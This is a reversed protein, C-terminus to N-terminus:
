RSSQRLLALARVVSADYESLADFGNFEDVNEDDDEGDVAPVPFSLSSMPPAVAAAAPTATAAQFLSIM